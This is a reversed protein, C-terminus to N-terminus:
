KVGSVSWGSLGVSGQLGAGANLSSKAPPVIPRAPEVPDALRRPARPAAVPPHAQKRPAVRKPQLKNRPVVPLAPKARLLSLPQMRTGRGAALIM